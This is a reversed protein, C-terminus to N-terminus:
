SSGACTRPRARGRRAAARRPTCAGGRAGRPCRAAASRAAGPAPRAGRGARGAARGAASARRPGRRGRGRRRGRAGRGPRCPRPCRCSAPPVSWSSPCSGRPPRCPRRGGGGLAPAPAALAGRGRPDHPQLDQRRAGDEDAEDVRAPPLEDGARRELGAGRRPREARRAEADVEAVAVDPQPDVPAHARDRRRAARDAVLDRPLAPARREGSPCRGVQPYPPPMAARAPTTTVPM